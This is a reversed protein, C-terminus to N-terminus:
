FREANTQCFGRSCCCCRQRPPHTHACRWSSEALLALLAASIWRLNWTQWGSEGEKERKKKKKKAHQTGNRTVCLTSSSSSSSSSFDPRSCAHVCVCQRLADNGRRTRACRREM